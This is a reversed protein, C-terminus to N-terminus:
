KVGVMARRRRWWARGKRRRRGVAWAWFGDGEVRGASRVVPKRGLSCTWTEKVDVAESPKRGPVTKERAATACSGVKARPSLLPMEGPVRYVRMM